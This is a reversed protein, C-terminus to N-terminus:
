PLIVDGTKECRWSRAGKWPGAPFETLDLNGLVKGGPWWLDVFNFKLGKGASDNACTDEDYLRCV